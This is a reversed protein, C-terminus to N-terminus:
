LAKWQTLQEPFPCKACDTIDQLCFDQYVQLLAQHHWYKKLYSKRRETNGFLRISARDVKESLASAPAKLFMEWAESEDNALKTPLLHNIQFDKVRDAGILSLRKESRKSRVTYHHNWYSHELSKMFNEIGNSSQCSKTFEQWRRTIQALAALRRQPHNAPRIGSLQWPIEREPTPEYNLRVRWWTEWLNRLYDRTDGTAQDHLEASLFGASGFIMSEAEEPMSLLLAIPLRQALLIMPLKNPRYGLTEAVAQWLWEDEGLADITRQQRKAKQSMRHRAAELMLSNVDLDSMASLPQLCRGSHASARSLLPINLAERTINEPVCIRTINHNESNRTFREKGEDSFVVHLIVKNFAPNQTHRHAEWDTSSRELEISGHHIKGNIEVSAHLFDPGASHNWHGFQIIKVLYNDKSTFSRGMQGAFWHAQLQLESPLELPAEEKLCLQDASLLHLLESYRSM